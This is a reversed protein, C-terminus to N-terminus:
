RTPTTPSRSTPPISAMVAPIIGTAVTITVTIASARRPVMLTPTTGSGANIQGIKMLGTNQYGARWIIHPKLDRGARFKYLAKDSVIYAGDRAIAFSNEIEEGLLISDCRGSAPDLVGVTGEQRGVFWFRGRYDPLVSPM